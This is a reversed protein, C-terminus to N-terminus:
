KSMEDIIPQLNAPSYSPSKIVKGDKDKVLYCRPDKDKPSISGIHINSLQKVETVAEQETNILRILYNKSEALALEFYKWLKSFNSRMVENFLPDYEDIQCGGSDAKFHKKSVLGCAVLTGETVVKLDACGDAILSLDVNDDEHHLELRDTKYCFTWAENDYTDRFVPRFGLAQITEFAEELILKARLKRTELSPIGPKEPTEQGFQKMWERVQQQEATVTVEM